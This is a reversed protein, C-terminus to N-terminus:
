KKNTRLRRRYLWSLHADNGGTDPVQIFTLLATLM